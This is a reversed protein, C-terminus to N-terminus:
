DQEQIVAEMKDFVRPDVMTLCIRQLWPCVQTVIESDEEYELLVTHMLSFGHMRMMRQQVNSDDTM